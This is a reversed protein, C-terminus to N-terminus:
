GTLRGMLDPIKAASLVGRGAGGRVGVADGPGAFLEEDGCRRGRRSLARTHAGFDQVAVVAPGGQVHRLSPTRREFPSRGFPAVPAMLRPLVRAEFAGPSMSADFPGGEDLRARIQLMRRIENTLMGLFKQPWMEETDVEYKGAWVDRGSFLRELRTLVDGAERRGVAEFFEYVDESAEDEVNSAVDAARIRGGKGAWELLKDLESAFKGPHADTLTLLREIAGPEIGVERDKARAAALRRLAPGADEGTTVVLVLGNAEIEKLLDVGAPPAVATLLAVTGDNAKREILMRLASKLIAPGGSKEEPLEKLIEALKPAEEKKRVKRAAAEANEEPSASSPLDLAALLARAFRFAKRRGGPTAEDWAELAQTM